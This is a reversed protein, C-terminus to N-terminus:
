RPLDQVEASSFLYCVEVPGVIGAQRPGSCDDAEIDIDGPQDLPLTLTQVSGYTVVLRAVTKGAMSATLTLPYHYPVWGPIEIGLALRKGPFPVFIRVRTKQRLWGAPQRGFILYHPSSSVRYFNWHLDFQGVGFGYPTVGPIQGGV